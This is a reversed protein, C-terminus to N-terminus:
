GTRALLRAALNVLADREIVAKHLEVKLRHVEAGPAPSRSLRFRRVWIRVAEPRIDLRSAVVAASLRHEVVLRIADAKLEKPYYKPRMGAGKGIVPLM